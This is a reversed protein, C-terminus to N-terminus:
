SETSPLLRLLPRGPRGYYDLIGNFFGAYTEVFLHAKGAWREEAEADVGAVEAFLERSVAGHDHGANVKAHARVPTVFDQDLGVRDCAQLFSDYVPGDDGETDTDLRGELLGVTAMFFLPDTRSWWTLMNILATTTPLPRARLLDDKTIGLPQFARVVIDDHRHEEHFFEQAMSRIRASSPHSVIPADFRTEQSLFFWNELGFGHFVAHPLSEPRETVATWFPGGFVLDNMLGNLTDELTSLAALGSRARPRSVDDVLGLAVAPEIIQALVQADLNVMAPLDATDHRGDLRQLVDVITEAGIGDAPEIDFVGGAAHLEVAGDASTEVRARLLPRAPVVSSTM